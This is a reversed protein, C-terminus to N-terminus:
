DPSTCQMLSKFRSKFRGNLGHNAIAARVPGEPNSKPNRSAATRVFRLMEIVRVVPIRVKKGNM